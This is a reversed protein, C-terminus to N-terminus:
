CHGTLPKGDTTEKASGGSQRKTKKQSCKHDPNPKRQSKKGSATASSTPRSEDVFSARRTSKTRTTTTKTSVASLRSSGSAQSVKKARKREAKKERKEEAEKARKREAEKERAFPPKITM